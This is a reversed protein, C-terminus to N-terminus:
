FNETNAAVSFELAYLLSLSTSYELIKIVYNGCEKWMDEM